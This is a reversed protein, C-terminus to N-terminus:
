KTKKYQYGILSFTNGIQTGIHQSIYPVYGGLDFSVSLQLVASNRGTITINPTVTEQINGTRAGNSGIEYFDISGGTSLSSHEWGLLAFFEVRGWKKGALIGGLITTGGFTLEGQVDTKSPSYSFNMFTANFVPSLNFQLSPFLSHIDHELSFGSMSFGFQDTKAGIFRFQGETNWYSVGIQPWVMPVWNIKALDPYGGALKYESYGAPLGFKDLNVTRLVAGKEPGFITSTTYEGCQECPCLEVKNYQACTVCNTDTFTGTYIRDKQGIYSVVIPLGIYFGFGKDVSSSRYWGNNTLTGFITAIPKVYGPQQEFAKITPQLAGATAPFWLLFYISFTQLFTKPSFLM